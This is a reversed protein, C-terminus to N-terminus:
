IERYRSSVKCNKIFFFQYSFILNLLFFSVLLKRTVETACLFHVLGFVILGRTRIGTLFKSNHFHTKWNSFCNGITKMASRPGSDFWLTPSRINNTTPAPPPVDWTLLSTLPEDVSNAASFCIVWSVGMLSELSLVQLSYYYNSLYLLFLDMVISISLVIWHNTISKTKWFIIGLILLFNREIQCFTDFIEPM